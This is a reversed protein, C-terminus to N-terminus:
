LSRDHSLAELLSLFDTAFDQTGAVSLAPIHLEQLVAESAARRAVQARAAARVLRQDARASAPLDVRGAVDEVAVGAPPTALPFMDQIQVCLLAHRARLRKLAASDAGLPHAEDTILVALSRQTGSGIAQRALAGLDSPATADELQRELVRLALELHGRSSRHPLHRAGARNGAVLALQDGHEYALYALVGAVHGAVESKSEGSPATGRMEVGTDCILLTRQTADHVYRKIIPLGVRATSKWDIDGVDDGPQYLYLDDFDIGTGKLISPHIGDLVGQARRVTPLGLRTRVRVLRSAHAGMGPVAGGPIGPASPATGATAREPM